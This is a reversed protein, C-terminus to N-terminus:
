YVYHDGLDRDWIVAFKIVKNGFLAANNVLHVPNQIFQM